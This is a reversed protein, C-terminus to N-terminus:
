SCDVDRSRQHSLNRQFTVNSTTVHRRTSHFCVRFPQVCEGRLYPRKSREFGGLVLPEHAVELGGGARLKDVALPPDM